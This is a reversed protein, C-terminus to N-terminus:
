LPQTFPADRDADAAALDANAEAITRGDALTVPDAEPLGALSTLLSLIAALGSGSAVLTWDVAEIVATTGILAVATQALTRVARILAATLWVRTFM